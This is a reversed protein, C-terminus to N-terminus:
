TLWQYGHELQIALQDWTYQEVRELGRRSLEQALQKSELIQMISNALSQPDGAPQALIGAPPQGLLHTRDGVPSSVFPVGCLWSEYLKLPSRGRAAEVDRVPDVSVDSLAYYKRVESPLVRGIFHTAQSIGLSHSLDLM